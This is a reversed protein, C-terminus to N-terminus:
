KEYGYLVFKIKYINNSNINIEEVRLLDRINEYKYVFYIFNKYEGKLKINIAMKKNIIGKKDEDFIKNEFGLVQLGEKKANKVLNKVFSGWKYENFETFDLLDILEDYFDKQTKLTIKKISLTKLNKNLENIKINMQYSKDKLTLFTKKSIQYENFKEDSYEKSYPLVFYLVLFSVVVIILLYIILIDRLRKSYFYNDIKEILKM